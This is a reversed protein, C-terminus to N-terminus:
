DIYNFNNIKFSNIKKDGEFEVGYSDLNFKPNIYGYKSYAFQLYFKNIMEKPLTIQYIDRKNYLDRNEIMDTWVYGRDTDM